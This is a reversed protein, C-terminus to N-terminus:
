WFMLASIDPVSTAVGHLNARSIPQMPIPQMPYLQHGKLEQGLCLSPPARCGHHAHHKVCQQTQALLRLAVPQLACAIQLCSCNGLFGCMGKRLKALGRARYKLAVNSAQHLLLLQQLKDSLKLLLHNSASQRQSSNCSANQRKPNSCCCCNSSSPQYSSCCITPHVKGRHPIAPPM